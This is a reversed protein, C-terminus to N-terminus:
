IMDRAKNPLQVIEALTTITTAVAALDPNARASLEPGLAPKPFPNREGPPTHGIIGGPFRLLTSLEIQLTAIGCARAITASVTNPERAAYYGDVAIEKGYKEAVHALRNEIIDTALTAIEPQAVVNAGDGTGLAIIAPSAAAMGHIDIVLEIEHQKVYDVLAQKYPCTDLPDFNPDSEAFRTAVLAHAGTIRALEFALPGTFDESAKIRGKRMHTVAHPASVLAPISGKEFAFPPADPLGRYENVSFRTRESEVLREVLSEM